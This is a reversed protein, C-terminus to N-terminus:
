APLEARGDAQLSPWKVNSIFHFDCREAEGCTQQSAIDHKPGPYGLSTAFKPAPVHCAM